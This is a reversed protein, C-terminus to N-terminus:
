FDFVILALGYDHAVFEIGHSLYFEYKHDM